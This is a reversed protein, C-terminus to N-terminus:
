KVILHSTECPVNRLAKGLFPPRVDIEKLDALPIWQYILREGELGHFSGERYIAEETHLLYYLAVEHMDDGRHEFFTEAMWVTREVEVTYGLEEEMERVITDESAEGLEIGGGPLAWYTDNVQKHLLVHENEILIGAARYNFRQGEVKFRVDRAM